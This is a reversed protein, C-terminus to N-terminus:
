VAEGNVPRIIMEELGDATERHHVVHRSGYVLLNETMKWVRVCGSIPKFISTETM